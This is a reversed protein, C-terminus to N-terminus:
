LESSMLVEKTVAVVGPHTCVWAAARTCQKVLQTEDLNRVLSLSAVSIVTDGAGCVDYVEISEAPELHYSNGSHIFMGKSGLTILTKDHPMKAQLLQCMKKLETAETILDMQMALQIEHRNPNSYRPGAIPM